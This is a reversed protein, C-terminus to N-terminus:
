MFPPYSRALLVPRRGAVYNWCSAAGLCLSPEGPPKAVLVVELYAAL